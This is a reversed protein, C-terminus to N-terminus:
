GPPFKTAPSLEAVAFNFVLNLYDDIHGTRARNSRLGFTWDESPRTKVPREPRKDGAIM